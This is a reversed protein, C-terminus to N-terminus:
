LGRRSRSQCAGRMFGLSSAGQGLAARAHDDILFWSGWLRAGVALHRRMLAFYAATDEVLLHTFVSSFIALDFHRDPADLRMGRVDGQGDPNYFENYVDAHMFRFNPYLSSINRECWRVGDAVVEVGLYEGSQDLWQTLPLAIRGVGSGIDLVKHAPALQCNKILSRLTSVGIARFDQSSGGVFMLSDPPVPIFKNEDLKRFYTELDM